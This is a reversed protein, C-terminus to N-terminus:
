LKEIIRGQPDTWRKTKSPQRKGYGLDGISPKTNISTQRSSSAGGGGETGGEAGSTVGAYVDSYFRLPLTPPYTRSM